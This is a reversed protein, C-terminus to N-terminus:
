GGYLIAFSKGDCSLFGIRPQLFVDKDSFTGKIIIKIKSIYLM